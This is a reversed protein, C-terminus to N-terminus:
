QALDALLSYPWAALSGFGPQNSELAGTLRKRASVLWENRLSKEVLYLHDEVALGIRPGLTLVEHLCRSRLGLATAMRQNAFEWFPERVVRTLRSAARDRPDPFIPDLLRNSRSEGAQVEYLLPSPM